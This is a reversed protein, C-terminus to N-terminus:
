EPQRAKVTVKVNVGAVLDGPMAFGSSTSATQQEQSSSSSSPKPAVEYEFHSHTLVQIAATWVALALGLFYVPSCLGMSVCNVLWNVSDHKFAWYPEGDMRDKLMKYAQNFLHCVTVTCIVSAVMLFAPFFSIRIFLLDLQRDQRFFLLMVGKLVVELFGYTSLVGLLVHTNVLRIINSTGYIAMKSFDRLGSLRREKAVKSATYGFVLPLMMFYYAFDSFGLAHRKAQVWRAYCNALWNGSEEEPAYNVTPLLLPEVTTQGLTMLFCKIGMHYDEAIWETDWGGVRRALNMSLSYTSYPFRVANTDSLAALEAIATFITGVVVPSPQTHYNKVHLVPSQWIRAYRVNEDSQLFLDTLNEFYGKSFQSDADAVTLIVKNMMDKGGEESLLKETLRNFAWSVNSAKGRPEKPHNDPHYSVYIERFKKGFRNRLAEAKKEGESGERAEFALVISIHKQAISSAAISELAMAVVEQNEKWMPIIVWHLAKIDNDPDPRRSRDQALSRAMRCMSVWGFSVMWIGNTFIFASTLLTLATLVEQPYPRALGVMLTPTGFVMLAPVSCCFARWAAYIRQSGPTLSKQPLVPLEPISDRNEIGQSSSSSAEENAQPMDDTVRLCLSVLVTLVLLGFIHLAPYAIGCLLLLMTLNIYSVDNWVVPGINSVVGTPHLEESDSVRAWSVNENWIDSGSVPATSNEAKPVAPPLGLLSAAHNLAVEAQAVAELAMADLSIRSVSERFYGDMESLGLYGPRTQRVQASIVSSRQMLHVGEISDDESTLVQGPDVCREHRCFAESTSFRFTLSFVVTALMLRGQSQQPM